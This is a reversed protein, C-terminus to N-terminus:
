AADSKRKMTREMWHPVATRALIARPGYELPVELLGAREASLAWGVRLELSRTQAAARLM